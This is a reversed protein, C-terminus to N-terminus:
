TSPSPCVSIYVLRQDKDVKAAKAANVVYRHVVVFSLTHSLSRLLFPCSASRTSERSIRRLVQMKSPRAWDVHLTGNTYSLDLCRLFLVCTIFVVDWNGENLKAEDLREFDIVKQELKGSAQASLEEAPTVRRGAECVRSFTPSAILESLLHRGVQGTAGIILASKPAKTTGYHTRIECHM